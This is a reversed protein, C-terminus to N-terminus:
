ECVRLLGQCRVSTWLWTLPVKEMKISVWQQCMFPFKGLIMVSELMENIERSAAFLASNAIQLMKASMVPDQCILRAVVDL